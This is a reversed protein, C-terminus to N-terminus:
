QREHDGAPCRPAGVDLRAPHRHRQAGDRDAVATLADARDHQAPIGRLDAVLLAFEQRLIGRDALDVVPDLVVQLGHCGQEPNLGAAGVAIDGPIGEALGHAANGGDGHHVVGEALSEVLVDVKVHHEVPHQLEDRLDRRAVVRRHM